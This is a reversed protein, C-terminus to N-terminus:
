AVSVLAPATVAALLPICSVHHADYRKERTMVAWLIRANKNALAVVARQWGIRERLKHAWLFIPNDYQRTLVIAKAGQILLTRLYVSGRKTISGLSTKGGSSHQKPTLGLWAAFQAGNRFQRFDGVTAVLASATISGVGMLEAARQVQEDLKQHDTIRQDCWKIHANLERWHEHARQLVLRAVGAIDNSADEVIDILHRRLIEPSQPLVVGFEALLGRIRNICATREEKLGERLRHVCLMVQQALTKPPVFNMHPRSAAECVAAADNADNKGTRGQIRYPAVSSGPIIRADFGRDILKRSCHHAGSCAEMAIVCGAPLDACWLLFKGRKLARNTVVKGSADVAHVQILYNALDIGVRIVTNM